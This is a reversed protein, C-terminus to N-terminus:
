SAPAISKGYGGLVGAVEGLCKLLPTESESEFVLDPREFIALLMCDPDHRSRFGLGDPVTPHAFLADAWAGCPEYPGTSIANDLGLVQLGAGHLWVLRLDRQCRLVSASRSAIEAENVMKRRPNRLLTEVLAGAFSLAVYLVGFAGTASDFRYTPAVGPGPGFFVPGFDQRHVR